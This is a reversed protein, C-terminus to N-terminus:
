KKRLVIIATGIKTNKFTKDPLLYADVLKARDSILKKVPEYGKFFFNNSTIFVLLGGSKLTDLSRLMFYHEMKMLGKVKLIKRESEIKTEHEAKGYPPNGIVLDFDNEFYKDPLNKDFQKKGYFHNAFSGKTIKSLPYCINVIRHSIENMEYGSVQCNVFDVYKLFNGTGVSPELVKGGKFGYKNALLWMKKVAIDPTYFESFAEKTFEEGKELQGGIGTYQSIFNKEEITFTNLDQDITGKIFEIIANNKDRQSKYNANIDPIETDKELEAYEQSIYGNDEGNYDVNYKWDGKDNQWVAKIDYVKNPKGKEIIRDGKKFHANVLDDKSKEIEVKEKEEAELEKFDKLERLDYPEADLGYDFTWGISELENKVKGLEDYNLGDEFDYKRLIAKVNEPQDEYFEFYDLQENEETEEVRFNRAYELDSQKAYKHGNKHSLYFGAKPLNYVNFFDKSIYYVSYIEFGRLKHIEDAQEQAKEKKDFVLYQEKSYYDDAVENETKVENETVNLMKGIEIAEEHYNVDALSMQLKTLDENSLHARDRYMQLMGDTDFDKRYLDGLEYKHEIEVEINNNEQEPFTILNVIEVVRNIEDIKEDDYNDYDINVIGNKEIFIHALTEYLVGMGMSDFLITFRESIGGEHDLSYNSGLEKKIIENIKSLSKKIKDFNNGMLELSNDYGQKDFNVNTTIEADPNLTLNTLNKELFAEVGTEYGELNVRVDNKQYHEVTGYKNNYPNDIMPQGKTLYAKVKEPLGSIFVRDGVIFPENLTEDIKDAGSLNYEILKEKLLKLGERDMAVNGNMYNDYSEVVKELEKNFEIEYKKLLIKLYSDTVKIIQDNDYHYGFYTLDIEQALKRKGHKSIEDVIIRNESLVVFKLIYYKEYRKDYFGKNINEQVFNYYRAKDTEPEPLPTQEPTEKFVDVMKETQINFRAKSWVKMYEIYFGAGIKNENDPRSKAFEMLIKDQAPALISSGDSMKRELSSVGIAYVKDYNAQTIIGGKLKHKVDKKSLTLDNNKEISKISFASDGIAFSYGKENQNLRKYAFYKVGKQNEIDVFTVKQSEFKKGKGVINNSKVLLNIKKESTMVNDGVVTYVDGKTADDLFMYKKDTNSTEPEPTEDKIGYKEEEKKIFDVDLNQEFNEKRPPNRKESKQKSAFSYFEGSLYPPNNDFINGRVGKAPTKTGAPKFLDGNSLDIFAVISISSNSKNWVKAYKRGFESYIEPKELNPFNSSIYENHAKQSEIIYKDIQDDIKKLSLNEKPEEVDDPQESYKPYYGLEDFATLKASDETVNYQDMIEVVRDFYKQDKNSQTSEDNQEGIRTFGLKDFYEVVQATPNNKYFVYGNFVKNWKLYGIKKLDAKIENMNSPKEPFQLVWIDAGTKTHQEQKISYKM